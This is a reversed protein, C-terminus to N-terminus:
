LEHNGLPEDDTHEQDQPLHIVETFGRHTKIFFSNYCYRERTVTGVNCLQIIQVILGGGDFTYLRDAEIVSAFLSPKESGWSTSFLSILRQSPKATPGRAGTKM